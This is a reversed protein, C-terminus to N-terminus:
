DYSFIKLQTRYWHPAHAHQCNQKPTCIELNKLNNNIRNLDLHNIQYGPPISGLFASAVARHIYVEKGKLMVGYYGVGYLRPKLIRFKNRVRGFTSVEYPEFAPITKWHETMM